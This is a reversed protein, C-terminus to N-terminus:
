IDGGGTKFSAKYEEVAGPKTRIVFRDAERLDVLAINKDLLRDDRQSDALKKLALGVDEEPLKIVLGNKMTLDWRRDGVWTAAEVRAKVDIEADLLAMLDSVKKNAGEGVVLPLASFPRLDSTLVEGDADIVRVKGDVQWLALPSRETIRIYISNPLQRRVNADKVWSVKRLLDRATVPDFAFIPDGKEMNIIGRLLDAETYNRGEVYINDVRYGMNAAFYVMRERGWERVMTASGSSFFLYVGGIAMLGLASAMMLRKLSFRSAGRSESLRRNVNARRTGNSQM